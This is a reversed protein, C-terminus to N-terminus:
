ALPPVVTSPVVSLAHVPGSGTLGELQFWNVLPEERGGIANLVDQSLVGGLMACTPSFEGSQSLSLSLADFFAGADDNTSLTAPDIGRQEM